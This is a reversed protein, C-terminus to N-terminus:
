ISFSSGCLTASEKAFVNFSAILSFAAASASFALFSASSFSALCFVASALFIPSAQSFYIFVYQGFMASLRPLIASKSAVRKTDAISSIHLSSSVTKGVPLTTVELGLSFLISLSARVFNRRSFPSYALLSSKIWSILQVKFVFSIYILSCCLAILRLCTGEMM